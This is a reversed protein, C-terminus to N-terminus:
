NTSCNESLKLRSIWNKTVNKVVEIEPEIIILNPNAQQSSTAGSLKEAFNKALRFKGVNEPGFFLYANAIKGSQIIRDLLKVAKKNGIIEMFCKAHFM